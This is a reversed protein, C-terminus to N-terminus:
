RQPLAQVVKLADEFNKYSWKGAVTGKKLLYLTPNTRAAMRIMVRDGALVELDKFPTGALAQQVPLATSSIIYVPMHAALAARYVPDFGGKWNDVPNSLDEHFLLLITGADLIGQTVNNGAANTFDFGRIEPINNSGARILKDYRNIFKYTSDNFDAPFQEANFEVKKGEKEYVFVIETSDPVANAPIKLKGPIFSGKQFPLCDLVPLYKLTYWQSGFSFLAAIVMLVGTTNGAFLPRIYRQNIFLFLILVLLVLDKIFSTKSTIPICDGFCGCNTFKGSLYAYGTLFTFFLILLLLLWSVLKRKYGLLLAVGAIIEFAIMLVSLTLTIGNLASMKWLEFFEQMKYSLGIPDNAKILGSFIFLVGVIVRVVAILIKM